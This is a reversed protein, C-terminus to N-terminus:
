AMQERDRKCHEEQEYKMQESMMQAQQCEMDLQFFSASALAFLEQQLEQKWTM